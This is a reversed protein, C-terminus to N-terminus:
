PVDLRFRVRMVSGSEGYAEGHIAGTKLPGSSVTTRTEFREAFLDDRVLVDLRVITGEGSRTPEASYRIEALLVAPLHELGRAGTTVFVPVIAGKPTIIIALPDQECWEAAAQVPTAPILLTIALALIVVIRAV